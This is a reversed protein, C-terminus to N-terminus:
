IEWTLVEVNNDYAYVTTGYTLRKNEGAYYCTKEDYNYNLKEPDQNLVGGRLWGWGRAYAEQIFSKADEETRCNIATKRQEWLKWQEPTLGNSKVTTTPRNILKFMNCVRNRLDGNDKLEKSKYLICNATCDTASGGCPAEKAWEKLMDMSDEIERNKLIPDGNGIDTENYDINLTNYLSSKINSLINCTVTANAFYCENCSYKMCNYNTMCDTVDILDQMTIGM